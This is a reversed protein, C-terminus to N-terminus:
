RKGIIAAIMELREETLLKEVADKERQPLNCLTEFLESTRKGFGYSRAFASPKMGPADKAKAPFMEGQGTELWEISLTPFKDHLKYKIGAPLHERDGYEIASMTSQTSKILAALKGQSLGQSDRFEKFREGLGTM